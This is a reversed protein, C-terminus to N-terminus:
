KAEKIENTAEQLLRRAVKLKDLISNNSEEFWVQGYLLEEKTSFFDISNLIGIATAIKKGSNTDIRNEMM